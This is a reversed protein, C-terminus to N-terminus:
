DNKMVEKDWNQYWFDALKEHYEINIELQKMEKKFEELITQEKLYNIWYADKKARVENNINM